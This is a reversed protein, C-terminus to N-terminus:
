VKGNFLVRAGLLVQRIHRVSLDRRASDQHCKTIRFRPYQKQLAIDGLVSSRYILSQVQPVM